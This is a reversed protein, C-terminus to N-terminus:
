GSETEFDFTICQNAKLCHAISRYSIKQHRTAAPVSVDLLFLVRPVPKRDVTPHTHHRAPVQSSWVKAPLEVRCPLIFGWCTGRKSRAKNQWFTCEREKKSGLFHDLHKTLRNAGWQEWTSSIAPKGQKLGGFTQTRWAPTEHGQGCLAPHSDSVLPELRRGSCDMWLRGHGHPLVQSGARLECRTSFLHLSNLPPQTLLM